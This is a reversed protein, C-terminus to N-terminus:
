FEKKNKLPVVPTDINANSKFRWLETKLQIPAEVNFMASDPIHSATVYIYGQGDESFTDPWQLRSDTLLM